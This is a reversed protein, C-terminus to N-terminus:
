TRLMVAPPVQSRAEHKPLLPQPPTTGAAAAPFVAMDYGDTAFEANPMGLPHYAQEPEQELVARGLWTDTAMVLHRLTEAFSWEGDVRADVRADAEDVM